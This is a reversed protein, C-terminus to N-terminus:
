LKGLKQAITAITGGLVTGEFALTIDAPLVGFSTMLALAVLVSGAFLLISYVIKDTKVLRGGKVTFLMLRNAELLQVKQEPTLKDDKLILQREEMLSNFVDVLESFDDSKRKRRSRLSQTFGIGHEEDEYAEFDEEECRVIPLFRTEESYM